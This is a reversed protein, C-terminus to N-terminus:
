AALALNLGLVVLLGLVLTRFLREALRRRIRGGLYIGAAVPLIGVASGLLLPGDLMQLRYLGALMVLSSVTFSINITQVFLNKDLEISLLFPLVPMVQSGTLGNIFGTLLGVWPLLWRQMGAPLRWDVQWLTWLAYALMVGGLVRRAVDSDIRHLLQLGLLLGPVALVFMPWFRRLASRFRRAELMVLLNSSLSPVLVLPIALKLDVLSALLGLCITSFGLGTIGKLFAATFMAVLVGAALEVSV